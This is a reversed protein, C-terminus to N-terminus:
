AISQDSSTYIRHMVKVVVVIQTDCDYSSRQQQGGGEILTFLLYGNSSHSNCEGWNLPCMSPKISISLSSTTYITLSSSLHHHVLGEDRSTYTYTHISRNQRHVSLFSSLLLLLFFDSVLEGILTAETRITSCLCRHFFFQLAFFFPVTSKKKSNGYSQDILGCHSIEDGNKKRKERSRLLAYLLLASFFISCSFLSLSCTM